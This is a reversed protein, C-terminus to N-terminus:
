KICPIHEGIKTTSSIQPNNECSDLKKVLYEVDAYIVPCKKWSEKSILNEYKIKKQHCKSAAFTKIKVHKEM